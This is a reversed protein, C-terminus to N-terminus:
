EADVVFEGDKVILTLYPREWDNVENFTVTGTVGEYNVAKLGDKMGERTVEGDAEMAARAAEAMVYMQDYALAAFGDPIEGYAEEYKSVLAQVKEDPNNAAYVGVCYVGESASGAIDIMNANYIGPPGVIVSDMGLQKTQKIILGCDTTTGCLAIGEPNLNKVTTLMATYDQDTTLYPISDLVELGKEDAYAKMNEQLNIGYDNDPYLIVISKVGKNLYVDAIQPGVAADQVAMRFFYESIGTLSPSSSSVVLDPLGADDIIPAMALTCSSLCSGGIAVISEDDSYKQAGTASKQADGQDDYTVLELMAGDIGGAENIEKIALEYGQKQAVGYTANDGSLPAVLGFRITDSSTDSEGEEEKADASASTEETGSGGCGTLVSVTLVTALFLSVAKKKM